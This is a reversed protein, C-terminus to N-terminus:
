VRVEQNKFSQAIHRSLAFPIKAIMASAAKRSNSKKGGQKGPWSPDSFCDGGHKLGAKETEDYHKARWGPSIQRYDQANKVNWGTTWKGSDDKCRDEAKIGNEAPNTWHASTAGAKHKRANPECGLKMGRRLTIPMLAPVDGWLCFSGYRARAHGVYKQAGRVNEVVLPIHKGAAICAENQIRFQAMFLSIGLVPEPKPHANRYQMWESLEDETMQAEPKHWWSPKTDPVVAKADKWPMARYSFEQCPSSGVILSADKFQSGHLTMVDQLVLEGPYGGTGYDHREIDFGFVTFGEAMLGEAWGGLGCYLDIAIPKKSIILM